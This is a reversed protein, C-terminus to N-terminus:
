PNVVGMSYIWCTSSSTLTAKRKKTKRKKREPTQAKQPRMKTQTKTLISRQSAYPRRMEHLVPKRRNRRALRRHIVDSCM